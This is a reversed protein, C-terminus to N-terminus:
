GKQRTGGAKGACSCTGAIPHQPHPAFAREAGLGIDCFIGTHLSMPPWSPVGLGMQSCVAVMQVDDAESLISPDKIPVGEGLHHTQFKRPESGMDLWVTEEEGLGLLCTVKRVPSPRCLLGRDRGKLWGQISTM